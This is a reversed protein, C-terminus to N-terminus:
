RYNEVLRRHIFIPRITISSASTSSLQDLPAAARRFDAGLSCCFSSVTAGVAVIPRELLKLIGLVEDECNVGLEASAATELDNGVVGTSSSVACDVSSCTPM